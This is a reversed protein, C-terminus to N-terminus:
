AATLRAFRSRDVNGGSLMVGVRQGAFSAAHQMLVALGCAGSPELVVKLQDFALAMARVVVDDAASWVVCGHRQLIAFPRAGLSVTQQGDCITDPVASLVVIRGALMSQEADNGAAPEAGIMRIRPQLAKAAVTSGAFFGGGGVCVVLADLDPVDHLLELAATGQGAIVDDFDFPPILTRGEDDVIRQAIAARDDRMRDYLVVTAGCARAGDIKLGPADRPMVVTASVGLRQAAHSVALGHNGSTFAVVGRARAPGDLQQLANCAGRFKFSGTRQLNEAKFFLSAGLQADISPSVLVPTRVVMGHLRAAAAQVDDFTVM